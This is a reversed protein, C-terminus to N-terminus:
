PWEFVVGRKKLKARWERRTFANTSCIKYLRESGGGGKQTPKEIIKETILLPEVRFKLKEKGM